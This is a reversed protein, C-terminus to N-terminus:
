LPTGYCGCGESVEPGAQQQLGLYPLHVLRHFQILSPTGEQPPAPMHPILTQPNHSYTAGLIFDKKNSQTIERKDKGLRYNGQGTSNLGLELTVWKQAHHAAHDIAPLNTSPRCM